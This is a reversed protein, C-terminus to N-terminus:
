WHLEGSFGVLEQSEFKLSGHASGEGEVANKVIM